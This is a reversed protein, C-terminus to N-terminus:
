GNQKLRTGILIGGVLAAAATVAKGAGSRALKRAAEALMEAEDASIHRNGPDSHHERFKVIKESLNLGDYFPGRPM